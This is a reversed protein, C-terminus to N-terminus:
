PRGGAPKLGLAAGQKAHIEKGSIVNLALHIGLNFGQGNVADVSRQLISKPRYFDFRAQRCSTTLEDATMGAPSIMADGYRFDEDLWWNPRLLRGEAIMRDYLRTGPLAMLPNFNAVSFRHHTAFDVLQSATEATDHDYGIVFTGYVMLGADRIRALVHDYDARLNAGKGMAKLNAIGLSEFGILVMFCGAQKMLALLDPDDAVDMTIQCAWRKGLDVLGEFLERATERDSFLNDDVFFLLKEPRSQVEALVENVPRTRVTSGHYAHIACFECAYRCGRGFQILGLPPYDATTIAAMTPTAIPTHGSSAYRPQLRGARLDAVVDPWTDEADGIVVANAHLAAEDPLATPHYGGLIVQVGRARYRDALAYATRASFTDVSIAIADVDLDLPVSHKMGDIFRIPVEIPTLTRIIGFILPQLADSSVRGSMAPRIFALRM